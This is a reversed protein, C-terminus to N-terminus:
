GLRGSWGVAYDVAGVVVLGGFDNGELLDADEIGVAAIADGDGGEALDRDEFREAVVIDDVDEIHGHPRLQVVDVHDHLVCLLNTAKKGRPPAHSNKNPSLVTTSFRQRM